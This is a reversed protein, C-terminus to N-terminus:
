NEWGAFEGSVDIRARETSNTGFALTPIIMCNTSGYVSDTQHASALRKHHYAPSTTGVGLNGSADLTLPTTSGTVDRISFNANNAGPLGGCIEWTRGGSGSNELRLRVNAQDNGILRATAASGGTTNVDLKYGPSSTGLGLNGSADLTM